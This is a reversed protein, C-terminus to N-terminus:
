ALHLWPVTRGPPWGLQQPDSLLQGQGDLASIQESLGGNIIEQIRTIASKAEDSSLVRAM